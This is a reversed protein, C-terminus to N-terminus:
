LRQAKHVSPLTRAHCNGVAYGPKLSLSNGSRTLDAVVPHFMTDWKPAVAQAKVLSHLYNYIIGLVPAAWRNTVVAPKQAQMGRTQPLQAKQLDKIDKLGLKRATVM